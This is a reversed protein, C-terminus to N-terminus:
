IMKEMIADGLDISDRVVHAPEVTTEEGCIHCRVIGQGIARALLRGPRGGQRTPCDANQCRLEDVIMAEGDGEGEEPPPQLPQPPMMIPAPPPEEKEGIPEGTESDIYEANSVRMLDDPFDM